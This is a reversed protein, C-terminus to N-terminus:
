RPAPLLSMRRLIISGEIRTTGPTRRYYLALRALHCAPPTRFVIESRGERESSLHPGEALLAGTYGDTVRWRLGSGQAIGSTSYSAQLTYDRNAAVPAFRILSECNEPQEGSFTVRLGTPEERSASTGPAQPILWDFGQSLPSEAFYDEFVVSESAPLPKRHIQGTKVLGNWIAAAGEVQKAQILSDCANLLMPLDEARPHDVLRRVVPGTLDPRDITLLYSLYAAPADPKRIDLRDLLNGDEVVNGCLRFFPSWDSYAMAAAAKAWFWFRSEDNRRFYFNALTWKPLYQRDVSAAHLLRQEAQAIQGDAENRLALEIWSRADYPNLAVARELAKAAGRPDEDSILIGLRYHYVSSGPLIAAAKHMAAATDKQAWYDAWGARVSWAAAFGFGTLVIAIGVVRKMVLGNQRIRRCDCHAQDIDDWNRLDCYSMQLVAVFLTM